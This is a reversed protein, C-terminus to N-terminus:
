KFLSAKSILLTSIIIVTPQCVYVPVTEPLSLSLSLICVCLCVCIHMYIGLKLSYYKINYFSTSSFNTYHSTVTHIDTHEVSICLFLDLSFRVCIM